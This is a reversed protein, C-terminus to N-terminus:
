TNITICFLLDANEVEPKEKWETHAQMILSKTFAIASSNPMSSLDTTGQYKKSHGLSNNPYKIWGEWGLIKLNKEEVCYRLNDIIVEAYKPRTFLDIWQLIRLTVFYPKGKEYIRDPM